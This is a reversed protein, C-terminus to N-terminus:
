EGLISRIDVQRSGNELSQNAAIGILVAWAGDELTAQSPTRPAGLPRDFIEPLMLERDTEGDSQWHDFTIERVGESYSYLTLRRWVLTDLGPVVHEGPAWDTPYIDQYVLRGGTGELEIRTGELSAFATLNYSVQVGNEYDYWVDLNDEIDIREDYVCGDRLYGQEAEAVLYLQGGENGGAWEQLDFYYDCQAAFTCGTCRLSRFPGQRGYVQLGGRALVRRPHAGVLWNLVDFHHSGKQILLGGSNAKFRHWRRFYDAGHHRDLNEQFTIHILDGIAGQDVIQKIKRTATEYRMNHTVISLDNASNGRAAELIDRVQEPSVALPKECIARKGAALTQVVYEAHSADNTAIIVADPQLETLMTAFHTYTPLNTGWLANAGDMRAQSIDFLGVLESCHNFETRIPEAFFHM